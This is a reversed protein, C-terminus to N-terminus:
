ATSAGQFMDTLGPPDMGIVASLKNGNKYAVFHPLARAGIEDAIEHQKVTDVKYTDIVPFTNGLLEFVSFMMQSPGSWPAWCEIIVVRDTNIIKKFEDLSQIDQVM